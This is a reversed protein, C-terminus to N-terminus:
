YLERNGKFYILKFAHRSLHLSVRSLYLQSHRENGHTVRPPVMTSFEVIIGVLNNFVRCHYHDHSVVFYGLTSFKIQCCQKSHFPAGRHYNQVCFSSYLSLPPFLSFFLFFLTKTLTASPLTSKKKPFICSSNGVTRWPFIVLYEVFIFKKTTLSLFITVPVLFM